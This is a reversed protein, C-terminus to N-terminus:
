GKLHYNTKFGLKQDEKFGSLVPKVTHHCVTRPGSAYAQILSTDSWYTSFNAFIHVYMYLCICRQFFDRVTKNRINQAITFYYLIM